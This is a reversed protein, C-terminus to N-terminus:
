GIRSYSSSGDDVFLESAANSMRRVIRITPTPPGWSPHQINRNLGGFEVAQERAHGDGAGSTGPVIAFLQMVDQGALLGGDDGPEQVGPAGVQQAGFDLRHLIDGLHDATMEVADEGPHM